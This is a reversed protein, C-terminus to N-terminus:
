KKLIVLMEISGSDQVQVFGLNPASVGFDSFTIPISGQVEVGGDSIQLNLTTTVSRSVGAISLDGVATVSSKGGLIAAIDVPATLTFTATPFEGTKLIGQFQNDRSSSDTKVGTMQVEAEAGTLETGTVTAQGQVEETRGVVTADQGNLVEKVRYGAQSGASVKWDGSLGAPDLTGPTGSGSTRPTLTLAERAQSNQISAYIASGGWVAAIALVVVIGTIILKKRM